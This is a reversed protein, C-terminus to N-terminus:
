RSSTYAGRSPYRQSYRAAEVEAEELYQAHLSERSHHKAMADPIRRFRNVLGGM